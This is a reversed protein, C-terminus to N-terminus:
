RNQDVSRSLAVVHRESNRLTISAARQATQAAPRREALTDGAVARGGRM